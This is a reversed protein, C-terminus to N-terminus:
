KITVRPPPSSVQHITGLCHQHATRKSVNCSGPTSAPTADSVDRRFPVHMPRLPPNMSSSYSFDSTSASPQTVRQPPSLGRSRLTSDNSPDHRRSDITAIKSTEKRGGRVYICVRARVYVCVCPPTKPNCTRPIRNTSQDGTFLLQRSIQLLPGLPHGDIRELEAVSVAPALAHKGDYLVM